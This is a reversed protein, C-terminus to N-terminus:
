GQGVMEYKLIEMGINQERRENDRIQLRGQSKRGNELVFGKEGKLGRGNTKWHLKVYSQYQDADSVIEM